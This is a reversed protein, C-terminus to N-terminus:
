ALPSTSGDLSFFSGTMATLKQFLHQSLRMSYVSDQWRYAIRKETTAGVQVKIGPCLLIRTWFEPAMLSLVQIALFSFLLPRFQQRTTRGLNPEKQIRAPFSLAACTPPIHFAHHELATSMITLSLINFLLLFQGCVQPAAGVAIFRRDLPSSLQCIKDCPLKRPLSPSCCRAATALKGTNVITSMTSLRPRPDPCSGRYRLTPRSRDSGTDLPYTLKPM